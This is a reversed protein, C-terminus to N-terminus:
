SAKTSVPRKNTKPEKIGHLTVPQQTDSLSETSAPVVGAEQTEPQHLLETLVPGRNTEPERTGHLTVPQQVDSLSEPMVEEQTKPQHLLETVTCHEEKHSGSPCTSSSLNGKSGWHDGSASIEQQNEMEGTGSLGDACISPKTKLQESIESPQAAPDASAGAIQSSELAQDAKNSNLDQDNSIVVVPSSSEAPMQEQGGKNEKPWTFSLDLKKGFRLKLDSAVTSGKGESGGEFLNSLKKFSGMLGPEAARSGSSSPPSFFSRLPKGCNTASSPFHLKPWNTINPIEFLPRPQETEQPVEPNHTDLVECSKKACLVPEELLPQSLYGQTEPTASQGVSAESFLPTNAEVSDSAQLEVFGQNTSASQMAPEPELPFPPQFPPPLEKAVCTLDPDLQSPLSIHEAELSTETDTGQLLGMDGEDSLSLVGQGTDDRSVSPAARITESDQSELISDHTNNNEMEAILKTDDILMESKASVVAMRCDSLTSESNLAPFPTERWLNEPPVLGGIDRCSGNQPCAAAPIPSEQKHTEPKPSRFIGLLDGKLSQSSARSSLSFFSNKTPPKPSSFLGSFTKPPEILCESFSKVKTVFGSFMEVSSGLMSKDEERDTELSQVHGTYGQEVSPSAPELIQTLVDDPAKELPLNLPDSTFRENHHYNTCSDLNNLKETLHNDHSFCKALSDSPFAEQISHEKEYSAVGLTEPGILLTETQVQFEPSHPVNDQLKQFDALSTGPGNSSDLKGQYDKEVNLVDTLSTVEITNSISICPAMQQEHVAEQVIRDRNGSSGERNMTGNMDVFVSPKKCPQSTVPAVTSLSQKEGPTQQKEDLFSLSFFSFPRNHSADKKSSSNTTSFFSPLTFLGEAQSKTRPLTASTRNESKESGTLFSFISTRTPLEPQSLSTTATSFSQGQDSSHDQENSNRRSLIDFSLKNSGPVETVTSVVSTEISCDGSFGRLCNTSFSPNPSQQIPHDRSPVEKETLNNSQVDLTSPEKLGSDDITVQKNLSRVRVKRKSAVPKDSFNGVDQSNLQALNPSSKVEDKNVMLSISTNETTQMSSVNTKFLDGLTGFFNSVGSSENKQQSPIKKNKDENKELNPSGEKNVQTKFLNLFGSAQKGNSVVSVSSDEGRGFLKLASKFLTRDAEKSSQDHLLECNKHEDRSLQSTFPVSVTDVTIVEENETDSKAQPTTQSVEVVSKLLSQEKVHISKNLSFEQKMNKIEPQQVNSVIHTELNKKLLCEENQSNSELQKNLILSQVGGNTLEALDSEQDMKKMVLSELSQNEDFNLTSRVLAGLASFLSTGKNLSSIEGTQQLSNTMNDLHVLSTAEESSQICHFSSPYVSSDKALFQNKGREMVLSKNLDRNGITQPQNRLDLIYEFDESGYVREEFSTFNGKFKQLNYGSFDLPEDKQGYNSEELVQSFTGLNLYVPGESKPLVVSLDLPDDIPEEEVCWYLEDEMDLIKFSCASIISDDLMISSLDSTQTDCNLYEQYSCDPIFLYAYQGTSDTLVYYIYQGDHFMFYGYDGNESPWWVGNELCSWWEQYEYNVSSFVFNEDMKLSEQDVISYLRKEYGASFSLDIPLEELSNKTESVPLYSNGYLSHAAWRDSRLLNDENFALQELSEYPLDHWIVSNQNTKWELIDANQGKQCFNIASSESDLWLFVDASPFTNQNLMYYVPQPKRSNKSFDKRDSDWESSFPNNMEELTQYHNSKNLINTNLIHPNLKKSDEHIEEKLVHHPTLREALSKELLGQQTSSACHLIRDESSPCNKESQQNKWTSSCHHNEVWADSLPINEKPLSLFNKMLGSTEEKEIHNRQTESTVCSTVPIEDVSLHKNGKLSKVNGLSMSKAEDPKCDTVSNNSILNFIGSLLGPTNNKHHSDDSKLNLEQQSSLNELSSFRNFLGSLLGGQTKKSVKDVFRDENIENVLTSKSITSTLTLLDSVTLSTVQTVTKIEESSDSPSYEKSVVKPIVLTDIQCNEAAKHDSSNLKEINGFKGLDNSIIPVSNPKIKNLKTDEPCNIQDNKNTTETDDFKELNSHINPVSSSKILNLKANEHCNRQIEEDITVASDPFSQDNVATHGDTFPSKFLPFISGKERLDQQKESHSLVRFFPIHLKGNFSFSHGNKKHGREWEDEELQHIKMSEPLTEKSCTEPSTLLFQSFSKRLPELFDDDDTVKEGEIPKSSSEKNATGSGAICPHEQTNSACIKPQHPVLSLDTCPKRELLSEIDDKKNASGDLNSPENAVQSSLLDKSTFMQSSSTTEGDHRDVTIINGDNSLTDKRQHSELGCGVFSEKRTATNQDNDKKTEDKELFIKLPNLMSFVSKIVSSQSQPTYDRGITERADQFRLNGTKSGTHENESTKDNRGFDKNDVAQSSLPSQMSLDKGLVSKARPKSGSNTMEIQNLTETKESGLYVLKEVSNTLHKTGSGVKETLSSFLSGVACKVGNLEPFSVTKDKENKVTTLPPMQDGPMKQEANNSISNHKLSKKDRSLSGYRNIEEEKEALYESVTEVLCQLEDMTDVYDEKPEELSSPIMEEMPCGPLDVLTNADCNMKQLPSAPNTVDYEESYGGIHHISSPHSIPSLLSEQKDTLPSSLLEESTSSTSDELNDLPTFNTVHQNLGSSKECNKYDGSLDYDHNELKTTWMGSKVVFGNKYPHLIPYNQKKKETHCINCNETEPYTSKFDTNTGSRDNYQTRQSDEFDCYLPKNKRRRDVTDYKHAYSSFVSTEYKFDFNFATSFETEQGQTPIKKWNKYKRQEQRNYSKDTKSLTRIEKIEAEKINRHELFEQSIEGEIEDYIGEQEEYDIDSFASIIRIKDNKAQM